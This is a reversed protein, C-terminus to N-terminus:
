GALRPRVRDSIALILQTASLPKQLVDYRSLDIDLSAGPVAKARLNYAYGTIILTPTGKESANDAIMMGTGDTLLGDSLVLDYDYCCLLELGDEITQTADVEHGADLLIDQLTLLVDPDDEVLLIRPVPDVAEILNPRCTVHRDRRCSGIKPALRGRNTSNGLPLM